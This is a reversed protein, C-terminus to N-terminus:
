LLKSIEEKILSCIYERMSQSGLFEDMTLHAQSNKLQQYQQHRLTAAQSMHHQSAQRHTRGFLPNNIGHRDKRKTEQNFDKNNM